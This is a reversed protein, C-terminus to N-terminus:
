VESISILRTNNDEDWAYKAFIVKHPNRSINDVIIATSPLIKEKKVDEPILWLMEGEENTPAVEGGIYNGSFHFVQWSAIGEKHVDTLVAELRIQDVSLRAEESLEREAAHLPDEDLFVKGGIPQVFNPMFKKQPSRRIVLLKGDRKVFINAAMILQHIDPTTSILM